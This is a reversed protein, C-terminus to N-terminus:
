VCDNSTVFLELKLPTEWGIDRAKNSKCHILKIECLCFFFSIKLGTVINSWDMIIFYYYCHVNLSSHTPPNSADTSSMSAALYGQIWQIVGVVFFQRAWFNVLAVSSVNWDLNLDCFVM